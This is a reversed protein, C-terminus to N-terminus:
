ATFSAGRGVRRFAGDSGVAPNNEEDGGHLVGDFSMGPSQMASTSVQTMVMPRPSSVSASNRAFEAYSHHEPQPGRGAFGTANSNSTPRLQSEEIIVHHEDNSAADQDPNATEYELAKIFKYFGAALFAGLM